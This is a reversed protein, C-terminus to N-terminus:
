RKRIETLINRLISKIGFSVVHKEKPNMYKEEILEVPIEKYAGRGNDYVMRWVEDRESHSTDWPDILRKTEIIGDIMKKDKEDLRFARDEKPMWVITKGGHIRYEDYVEPVVPGLQWAEIVESFARCGKETIFSGQIHYLINQLQLNVIVCNEDICKKLIYRALDFASYKADM